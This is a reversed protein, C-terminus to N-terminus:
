PHPLRKIITACVRMCVCVSVPGGRDSVERPLVGSYNQNAIFTVESVDSGNALLTPLVQGSGEAYLVDLGAGFIVDVYLQGKVREDVFDGLLHRFGHLCIRVKYGL